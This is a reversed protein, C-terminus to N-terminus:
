RSGESSPPPGSVGASAIVNGDKGITAKVIVKGNLHNQRDADTYVPPVWKLLHQMEDKAQIIGKM